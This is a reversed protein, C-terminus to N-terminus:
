EHKEEKKKRKRSKALHYKPLLKAILWTLIRKTMCNKKKM